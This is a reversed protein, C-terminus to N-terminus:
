QAALRSALTIMWALACATAHLGPRASLACAVAIGILAVSEVILFPEVEALLVIAFLIWGHLSAFCAQFKTAAQMYHQNLNELDLDSTLVHTTLLLLMPGLVIVIFGGFAWDDFRTIASTDWFLSLHMLLLYGAWGLFLARGQLRFGSTLVSALTILLGGISLGVVTSFMIAVLLTNSLEM